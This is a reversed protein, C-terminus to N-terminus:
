PYYKEYTHQKLNIREENLTFYIDERRITLEALDGNPGKLFVHAAKIMDKGEHVYGVPKDLVEWTIGFVQVSDKGIVMQEHPVQNTNLCYCFFIIWKM